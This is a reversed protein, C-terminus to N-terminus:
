VIEWREVIKSRIDRRGHIVASIDIRDPKVRYLIRYNQFIIERASPDDVEPVHRGLEPFEELKQVTELLRQVFEAAYFTSGQAIYDRVGALDEIAPTSWFLIM